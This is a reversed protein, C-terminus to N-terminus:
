YISIERIDSKCYPCFVSKRFWTLSCTCCMTNNCCPMQKFHFFKSTCITCEEGKCFSTIPIDLIVEEDLRVIVPDWFSDSVSDANISYDLDTLMLYLMDEFTDRFRRISTEYSESDSETESNDSNM